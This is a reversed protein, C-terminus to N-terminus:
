HARRRTLVVSVKLFILVITTVITIWEAIRFIVPKRYTVGTAVGSSDVIYPYALPKVGLSAQNKHSAGLLEVGPTEAFRFIQFRNPKHPQAKVFADIGGYIGKGNMMGRCDEFIHKVLLESALIKSHAVQNLDSFFLDSRGVKEDLPTLRKVRAMYYDQGAYHFVFKSKELFATLMTVFVKDQWSSMYIIPRKNPYIVHSVGFLRFMQEYACLAMDKNFGNFRLASTVSDPSFLNAAFSSYIVNTRHSEWFLGKVFMLDPSFSSMWGEIGSDVGRRHSLVLLRQSGEKTLAEATSKLAVWNTERETDKVRGNLNWPSLQSLVLAVATAYAPWDKRLSWQSGLICVVFVTYANLRYWHFQIDLVNFYTLFVLVSILLVNALIYSRLLRQSKQFESLGEMVPVRLLVWVWLIMLPALNMGEIHVSTMYSRYVLFPLWFTAGILISLMGSTIMRLRQSAESQYVALLGFVAFVVTTVIHSLIVAGGLLALHITRKKGRVEVLWLLLFSFSLIQASLGTELLEIYSLGQLALTFKSGMLFVVIWLAAVWRRPYPVYANIFRHISFIYFGGVLSLYIKWVTFVDFPLFKFLAAGIADELPPYFLGHIGGLFFGPQFQHYMGRSFALASSIHGPIDITTLDSFNWLLYLYNLFSGYLLFVPGWGQLRKLM